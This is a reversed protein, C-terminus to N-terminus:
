PTRVRTTANAELVAQEGPKYQSLTFPGSGIVQTTM